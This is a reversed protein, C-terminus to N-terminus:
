LCKELAASDPLHLELYHGLSDWAGGLVEGGDGGVAGVGPM